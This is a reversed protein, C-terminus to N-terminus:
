FSYLIFIFFTFRLRVALINSYPFYVLLFYIFLFDFSRNWMSLHHINGLLGISRHVPHLIVTIRYLCQFWFFSFLTHSYLYLGLYLFASIGLYMFPSHTLFCLKFAFHVRTFLFSALLYQMLRMMCIFCFHWISKLFTLLIMEIVDLFFFAFYWFFPSPYLLCFLRWYSKM